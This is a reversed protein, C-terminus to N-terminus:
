KSRWHAIKELHIYLEDTRAGEIVSLEDKPNDKNYQRVFEESCEVCEISRHEFECDCDCYMM